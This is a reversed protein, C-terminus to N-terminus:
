KRSFLWVGRNGFNVVRYVYTVNVEYEETNIATIFLSIFDRPVRYSLTKEM